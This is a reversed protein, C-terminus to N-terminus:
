LVVLWKSSRNNLSLLETIECPNGFINIGTWMLPVAWAYVLKSFYSASLRPCPNATAYLGKDFETAPADAFLNAIFLFVTLCYQITYM